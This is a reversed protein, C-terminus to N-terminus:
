RGGPFSFPSGGTGGCYGAIQQYCRQVIVAQQEMGYQGFAKNLPLSVQYAPDNGGLWNGVTNGIQTAIGIVGYPLDGWAEFQAVHTMEHALADGTVFGNDGINGEGVVIHYGLAISRGSSLKLMRERLENTKEDDHGDYVQVRDCDIKDCMDGLDSREDDTLPRLGFPDGFNIPDGGAFGYLNLGGALGIPDEQTFKGTAPDYYRNRM